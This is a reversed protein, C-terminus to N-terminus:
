RAANKTSCLFPLTENKQEVTYAHYAHGLAIMRLNQTVNSVGIFGRKTPDIKIENDNANWRVRSVPAM